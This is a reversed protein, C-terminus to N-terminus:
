SQNRNNFRGLVVTGREEGSVLATVHRAVAEMIQRDESEYDYRDYVDSVSKEVHNQIRNMAFRGFRLRTVTTGHTRRLDHPTVKEEEKFGFKKCILRMAKDLERVPRGRDTEFVFGSVKDDVLEAIIARVEETLWV